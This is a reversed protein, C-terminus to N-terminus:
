GLGQQRRIEKRLAKSRRQLNQVHRNAQEREAGEPSTRVQERAVDLERAATLYERILGYFKDQVALIPANLAGFKGIGRIDWFIYFGRRRPNSLPQAEFGM